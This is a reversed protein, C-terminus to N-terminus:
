ATTNYTVNITISTCDAWTFTGRVVIIEVDLGASSSNWLMDGLANESGGHSSYWQVIGGIGRPGNSDPTFPVGTFIYSSDLTVTTTSDSTVQAFLHVQRGIKTYQAKEITFTHATLAPTWTGEEYDDLTNASGSGGLKIDTVQGIGSGTVQTLAM